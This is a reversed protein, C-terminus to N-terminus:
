IFLYIGKEYFHTTKMIYDFKVMQSTFNTVSEVETLRFEFVKDVMAELEAPKTWFKFYLRESFLTLMEKLIKRNSNLLNLLSLKITGKSLRELTSDLLSIIQTEKEEHINKNFNKEMFVVVKLFPNCEFIFKFISEDNEDKPWKKNLVNKVLDNFNHSIQLDVLKNMDNRTMSEINYEIANITFAKLDDHLKQNVKENQSFYKIFDFLTSINLNKLQDLLFKDIREKFWQYSIM